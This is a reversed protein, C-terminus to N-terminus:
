RQAPQRFRLGFGTFAGAGQYQGFQRRISSEGIGHLDEEEVAPLLDGAAELRGIQDLMAVLDEVRGEGVLVEILSDSDGLGLVVPM